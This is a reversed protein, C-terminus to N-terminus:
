MSAQVFWCAGAGHGPVQSESMRFRLGLDTGAERDHPLQAGLQLHRFIKEVGDRQLAPLPVPQEREPVIAFSHRQGSVPTKVVQDMPAKQVDVVQDGIGFAPPLTVALTQQLRQALTTARFAALPKDQIGCERVRQGLAEIETGAQEGRAEVEAHLQLSCAKGAQM